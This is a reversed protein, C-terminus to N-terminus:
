SYPITTEKVLVEDTYLAYISRSVPWSWDMKGQQVYFEDVQVELIRFSFSTPFWLKIVVM